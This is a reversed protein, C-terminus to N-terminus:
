EKLALLEGCEEEILEVFHDHLKATVKGRKGDGIKAGDVATIPTVELSVSSIFVEDAHKLDELTFAEEVVPIDSRKAAKLIGRRTIGNLILNDAPHTYIIGDKVMYVNSASCETVEGDRHLIAEMAGARHAHNKALVNGLLSISKIDCHLWRTDPETIATGGNEFMELNRLVETTSATLIGELAIDDPIIHNRPQQVGRSIQLYVNGTDINNEKVLEELLSRLEEKSYPIGLEIKEASAYLREMHEDFTFFKGNYIRIVEYIGDGFQYGRDEIDITAESRDVIKGNVIVKM